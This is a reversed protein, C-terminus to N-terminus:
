SEMVLKYKSANKDSIHISVQESGDTQFKQTKGSADTRGIQHSGDAKFAIYEVNNAPKGDLDVIEFTLYCPKNELQIKPVEVKEGGKFVHQGAKM